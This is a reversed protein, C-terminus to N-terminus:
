LLEMTSDIIQVRHDGYVLDLAKQLMSELFRADNSVAAIGLTARQWKDSHDVEAVSVNYKNLDSYLGRPLLILSQGPLEWDNRFYAGIYLRTSHNMIVGPM